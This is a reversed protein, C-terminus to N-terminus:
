RGVSTISRWSPPRVREPIRTTASRCAAAAPLGGSWGRARLSRTAPPRRAGRQSRRPHVANGSGGGRRADPGAIRQRRDRDFRIRRDHDRQSAARRDPGQDVGVVGRRGVRVGVAVVRRLAVPRASRTWSHGRWRMVWSLSSTQTNRAWSRGRKTRISAERRLSCSQAAATSSRSRAGNRARRAHTPALAADGRRDAVSPRRDRRSALDPGALTTPDGGGMAAFFIDEHRWVVGKPMGTTGGTYAIYLDDGSRGAFDREASAAAIVDEYELSDEIAEGGIEDNVVLSRGRFRSTCLPLEFALRSRATICWRSSIPMTTSNRSSRSWM